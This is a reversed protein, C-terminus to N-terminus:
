AYYDVLRAAALRTQLTAVPDDVPMDENGHSAAAGHSGRGSSGGQDALGAFASQSQRGDASGDSVNVDVLSAGQQTFMERLRHMQGELADRVGAHQSVFQVQHEQGRTQIRIELPGLEAPDLQIEVSKVNQSSMWMVKNVVAESWGAQGMPVGLTQAVGTVPRATLASQGNAHLQAAAASKGADASEADLGGARAALRSELQEILKGVSAPQEGGVGQLVRQQQADVVAVLLAPLPAEDARRGAEVQERGDIALRHCQGGLREGVEIRRVLGVPHLGHARQDGRAQRERGGAPAGLRAPPPPPAGLHVADHGGPGARPGGVGPPAPARELQGADLDGLDEGHRRLAPRRVGGELGERLGERRRALGLVNGQRGPDGPLGVGAGPSGRRPVEHALERARLRPGRLQPQAQPHRGRLGLGGRGLGGGGGRRPELGRAAAEEEIANFSRSDKSVERNDGLVYYEGPNLELVQTDRSTRNNESLYDEKLIHNDVFVRGRDFEVHVQNTQTGTHADVISDDIPPGMAIIRKVYRKGPSEPSEFVIINGDELPEIDSFISLRSLHYPLKFVLIRENTSLSPEMSDGQIEYGDVVFIKLGLFIILFWIVLKVFDMIEQKLTQIDEKKTAEVKEQLSQSEQEM